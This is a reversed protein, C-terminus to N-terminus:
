SLSRSCTFGPICGYAVFRVPGRDNPLIFDFVSVGYIEEGAYIGGDSSGFM